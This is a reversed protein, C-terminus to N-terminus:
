IYKQKSKELKTKSIEINACKKCNRSYTLFNNVLIKFDGHIKCTITVKDNYSTFISKSYDYKDGHINKCRNIFEEQTIM